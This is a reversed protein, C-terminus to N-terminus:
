TPACGLAVEISEKLKPPIWPVDEFIARGATADLAGQIRRCAALAAENSSLAAQAQPSQLLEAVSQATDASDAWEQQSSLVGRHLELLEAHLEVLEDPPDLAELDAHLDSGIVVAERVASQAEALTADPGILAANVRDFRSSADAGAAELGESYETLSMAGGCAALVLGVVVIVAVSRVM